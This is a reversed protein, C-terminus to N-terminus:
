VQLPQKRGYKTWVGYLQLLGNLDLKQPTCHAHNCRGILVLLVLLSRGRSLSNNEMGKIREM